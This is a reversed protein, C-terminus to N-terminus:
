NKDEEYGLLLAAEQREDEQRQAYKLLLDQVFKYADHPIQEKTLTVELTDLM